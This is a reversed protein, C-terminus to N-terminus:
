YKKLREEEARTLQEVLTKPGHYVDDIVDALFQGIELFRVNDARSADEAWQRLTDESFAESLDTRGVRNVHEVYDGPRLTYVVDPVLGPLRWNVLVCGRLSLAHVLHVAERRLSRNKEIITFPFLGCNGVITQQIGDGDFFETFHSVLWTKGTAPLAQIIM